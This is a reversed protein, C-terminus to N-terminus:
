INDNTNSLKSTVSKNSDKNKLKATNLCSKFVASYAIGDKLM